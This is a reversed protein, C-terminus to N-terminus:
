QAAELGLKLAARSEWCVQSEAWPGSEGSGSGEARGVLATTSPVDRSIGHCCVRVGREGM